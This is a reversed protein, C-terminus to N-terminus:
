VFYDELLLFVLNSNTKEDLYQQQQEELSELFLQCFNRMNESSQFLFYNTTVNKVLGM